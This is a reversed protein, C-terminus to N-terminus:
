ASRRRQGRMAWPPAILTGSPLTFGVARYYLWSEPQIWNAIQASPLM